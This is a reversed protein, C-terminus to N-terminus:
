IHSWGKYKARIHQVFNASRLDGLRQLMRKALTEKGIDVAMHGLGYYNPGFQQICLRMYFALVLVCLAPLIGYAMPLRAEPAPWEGRAVAAFATNTHELSLTSPTLSHLSAFRQAKSAVASAVNAIEDALMAPPTTKDLDQYFAALDKGAAVLRTSRREIDTFHERLNAEPPLTAALAPANGLHSYRSKATAYKRRFDKCIANCKAIGSEDKGKAAADALSEYAAMKATYTATLQSSAEQLQRALASIEAREQAYLEAGTSNKYQALVSHYGEFAVVTFSLVGAVILGVASGWSKLALPALLGFLAPVAQLAAAFILVETDSFSPPYLKVSRIGDTVVGVCWYNMFGWALAALGVAFMIVLSPRPSPTSALVDVHAFQNTEKMDM